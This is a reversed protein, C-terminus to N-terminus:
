GVSSVKDVVILPNTKFGIMEVVWLGSFFQLVLVLLLRWDGCKLLEYLQGPKGRCLFSM